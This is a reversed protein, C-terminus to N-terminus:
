SVAITKDDVKMLSVSGLFPCSRPRNRWKEVVIFEFRRFVGWIGWARDSKNMIRVAGSCGNGSGRYAPIVGFLQIAHPPAYRKQAAGERVGFDPDRMGVRTGWGDVTSASGGM